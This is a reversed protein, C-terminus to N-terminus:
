RLATADPLLPAVWVKRGAAASRIRAAAAGAAQDHSDMRAARGSDRVMAAVNEGDLSFREGVPMKRLGPEDAAALAPFVGLRMAIMASVALELTLSRSLHRSAPM